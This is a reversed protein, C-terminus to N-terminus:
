NKKEEGGGSSAQNEKRPPSNKSCNPTCFIWSKNVFMKMIFSNTNPTCYTCVPYNSRDKIVITSAALYTCLMRLGNKQWALLLLFTVCHKGAPKQLLKYLTYATYMYYKYTYLNPLVASKQHGCLWGRDTAGLNGQNLLVKHSKNTPLKFSLTYLVFGQMRSSSLFLMWWSIESTEPSSSWHTLVLMNWLYVLHM